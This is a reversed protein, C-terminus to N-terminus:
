ASARGMRALLEKGKETVKWGKNWALGGSRELMDLFFSPQLPQGDANSTLRLVDRGQLLDHVEKYSRPESCFEMVDMYTGMRQPVKDLLDSLRREPSLQDRVQDGVPTTEVAFSAVLDDAEDETLGEKDESYIISGDEALEMWALGGADVLARILRYAPQAAYPYEPYEVVCAEAEDLSRRELCFELLKLYIERHRPSATVTRELRAVAEEFEMDDDLAAADSAEECENTEADASVLNAVGETEEQAQEQAEDEAVLQEWFRENEEIRILEEAGIGKTEM